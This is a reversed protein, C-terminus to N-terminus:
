NTTPVQVQCEEQDRNSLSRTPRKYRQARAPGKIVHEHTDSGVYHRKGPERALGKYRVRQRTHQFM